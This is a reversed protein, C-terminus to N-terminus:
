IIVSVRCIRRNMAFSLLTISGSCFGLSRHPTNRLPLSGSLSEACSCFSSGAWCGATEGCPFGGRWWWLTGWREQSSTAICELFSLSCLGTGVGRIIRVFVTVRFWFVYRLVKERIELDLLLESKVTLADLELELLAFFFFNLKEFVGFM